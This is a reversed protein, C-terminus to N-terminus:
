KEKLYNFLKVYNNYRKISTKNNKVAEKISCNDEHTHTCSTNYKCHNLKVYDPYYDKLENYKLDIDIRLFGPTDCIYGNDLKHLEYHTTTNKGRNLSSSVENTTLNLNLIKNIFSSKGVGSQGSIVNIGKFIKNFDINIEEKNSIYYININLNNEYYSLEEKLEELEEKSLLDIKTVLISPNLGSIYSSLIMKDLLEFSFAPSVVSCVIILHDINAINPRTMKNFREYVETIVAINEKTDLSVYDGIYIKEKSHKLAGSIISKYILNSHQDIIYYYSGKFSLVLYIKYAEQDLNDVLPM